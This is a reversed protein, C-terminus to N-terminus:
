FLITRLSLCKLALL